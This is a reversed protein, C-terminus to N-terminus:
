FYGPSSKPGVASDGCGAKFGLAQLLRVEYLTVSILEQGGMPSRVRPLRTPDTPLFVSANDLVSAERMFTDSATLKEARAVVWGSGSREFLLGAQNFPKVYFYPRGSALTGAERHATLVGDDLSQYVTRKLRQFFEDCVASEALQTYRMEVSVPRKKM